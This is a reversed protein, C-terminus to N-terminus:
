GGDCEYSGPVYSREWVGRNGARWVREAEDQDKGVGACVVRILDMSTIRNKDVVPETQQTHYGIPVLPENQGAPSGVPVSKSDVMERNGVYGSIEALWNRQKGVAKV